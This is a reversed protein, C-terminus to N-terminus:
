RPQNQIAMVHRPPHTFIDQVGIEQLDTVIDPLDELLICSTLELWEPNAPIEDETPGKMGGMIKRAQPLVVRPVNAVLVIFHRAQWAGRILSVITDIHPKKRPNAYAKPNVAIVTSSEFITDKVVLHNQKLSDGSETLEIIAQASGDKISSETEGHSFRVNIDTRRHKRCYEEAIRVYETEIYAGPSLDEISAFGSRSHVAFVIKVPKLLKRGIPLEFLVQLNECDCEKIWDQGTIAIDFLGRSVKLPSKQPRCLRVEKLWSINPPITKSEGYDLTSIIGAQFLLESIRKEMSGNPTLLSVRGNKLM